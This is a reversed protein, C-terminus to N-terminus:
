VGVHAYAVRATRNADAYSINAADESIFGEALDADIEALAEAHGNQIDKRTM